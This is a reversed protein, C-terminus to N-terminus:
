PFVGNPFIDGIKAEGEDASDVAVGPALGPGSYEEVVQPRVQDGHLDAWKGQAVAQLVPGPPLPLQGEGQGLQGGPRGKM